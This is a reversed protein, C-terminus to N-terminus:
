NVKAIKEVEHRVKNEKGRRDYDAAALKAHKEFIAFGPNYYVSLDDRMERLEDFCALAAAQAQIDFNVRKSSGKYFHMRKAGYDSLMTM